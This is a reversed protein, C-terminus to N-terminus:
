GDLDEVPTGSDYAYPLDGGAVHRYIRASRGHDGGGATVLLDPKGAGFWDVIVPEADWGLGLPTAVVSADWSLPPGAVLDVTPDKEANTELDVASM